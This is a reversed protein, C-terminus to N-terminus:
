PGIRRLSIDGLLLETQSNIGIFLQGSAAYLSEAFWLSEYKTWAAADVHLSKTQPDGVRLPYSNVNELVHVGIALDAKGRARFSVRYAFGPEIPVDPAALIFGQGPGIRLHIPVAANAPVFDMKDPRRIWTGWGPPVGGRDDASRLDSWHLLNPGLQTGFPVKAGADLSVDYLDVFNHGTEPHGTLTVQLTADHAGPPLCFQQVYAQRFAALPWYNPRPGRALQFVMNRSASKGEADAFNIDVSLGCGPGRRSELLLRYLRLPELRLVATSASGRQKAAVELHLTGERLSVDLGKGSWRWALETGPGHGFPLDGSAPGFGRCPNILMLGLVLPLVAKM